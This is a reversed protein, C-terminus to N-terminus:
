RLHFVNKGGRLEGLRVTAVYTGPLAAPPAQRCENSSRTRDWTLTRVYPVGRQLQKMDTGVGSVCDASSWIRDAGSTIRIEMARPGVDAVCMVPGANVLMVIFSPQVDGAYVQDKGGQLSLVLDEEACPEGPRKARGTPTPTTPSP